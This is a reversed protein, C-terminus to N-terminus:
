NPIMGNLLRTVTSKGCGSKGCLLVCEGKSISISLKELAPQDAENYTYTVDKIEIM